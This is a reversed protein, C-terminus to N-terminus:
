RADGAALQRAFARVDAVLATPTELAAFHGGSSFETHRVLRYMREMYERPASMIDAPFRAYATPVDIPRGSPVRLVVGAGAAERYLRISSGISGTVWYLMVNTLLEDQSYVSELGDSCDSWGHFKEVIWAALGAPSDNLGVALSQPKTSQLASYGGERQQWARSAALFAKEEQSLPPATDDLAARAGPLNLHLGILRRPHRHAMQTTIIAGWDGGQTLFRDYGLTDVMLSTLLDAIRAPDIGEVDPHPSFGYGPLSVAVVSFADAATGGHAVPDTLPGLVKHVEYFSGPWGHVFLLPVAGPEPSRRHVFHVTVGNVSATFQEMANLEREAARWDYRHAWHDLLSGLYDPDMGGQWGHGTAAPIRTRRLRDRLDDLVEEPVDIRFPAPADPTM